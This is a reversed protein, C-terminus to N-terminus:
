KKCNCNCKGQTDKEALAAVILQHAGSIHCQECKIYLGCRACIDCSTEFRADAEQITRATEQLQVGKTEFKLM